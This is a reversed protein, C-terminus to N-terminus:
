TESPLIRFRDTEPPSAWVMSNEAVKVTVWVAYAFRFRSKSERAGRGPLGAAPDNPQRHVAALAGGQEGAELGRLRETAPVVVRRDPAGVADVRDARQLVLEREPRPVVLPLRQREAALEPDVREALLQVRVAARDGSRLVALHAVFGSAVRNVM